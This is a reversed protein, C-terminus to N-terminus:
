LMLALAQACNTAACVPAISNALVVFTGPIYLILWFNRGNTLVGKMAGSVAREETLMHGCERAVTVRENRHLLRSQVDEAEMGVSEAQQGARDLQWVQVTKNPLSSLYLLESLTIIKLFLAHKPKGRRKETNRVYLAIISYYLKRRLM